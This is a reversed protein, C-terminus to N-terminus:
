ATCNGLVVFLVSQGEVQAEFGGQAAGLSKDDWVSFVDCTGGSPVAPVGAWALERFAFGIRSPAGGKNLLVAAASGSPLPKWWVSTDPIASINVVTPNSPPYQSFNLMDGAYGAWAQNVLIAQRNSVIALDDQSISTLNMGLILPSSTICWLSFHARSQSPTLKVGKHGNGIELSDPYNWGGPGALSGRGILSAANTSLLPGWMANIDGSTRWLNATAACFEGWPSPTSSNPGMAPSCGVGCNQVLARGTANEAAIAATWRAMTPAQFPVAINSTHAGPVNCAPVGCMHDIKIGDFGWEGFVAHAWQAEHEYVAEFGGTVYMGIELGLSHIYDTLNRMPWPTEPGNPGLPKNFDQWGGDIDLKRYGLKDLGLNIIAHAMDIM